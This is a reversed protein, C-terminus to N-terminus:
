LGYNYKPELYRLRKSEALLAMIGILTEEANPKIFAAPLVFGFNGTDRFEITYSIKIDKENYAWDNTAGSAPYLIGASSGYKYITGYPLGHVADSYAKAVQMLDNYNDPFEEATHGYPSLLLQSYSHFALMVNMKHKLISIFDSLAKVEPESLPHPGAYTEDCPDSSAGGNEMWHSDFNRNPDVGVCDSILSPQRTKRWLRDTEHTYVFGDVNLVPIIYWDHSEALERVSEDKSTLLENILWTATASTIWERAHINSEIFVGPNGWKYSIRIGRIDRGEYSQGLVFGMTVEPYNALVTDLWADIETLNHYRTWGFTADARTGATNEQDILDQVNAIFMEATANVLRLKEEFLPLASPAVMLNCESGDDHWLSFQNQKVKTLDLLSQRQMPTKYKIRFVRYDDYRVKEKTERKKFVSAGNTLSIIIIIALLIYPNM